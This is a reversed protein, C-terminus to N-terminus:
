YIKEHITGGLSHIWEAEAQLMGARASLDNRQATVLNNEIIIWDDFGILGNEYQVSAIKAREESARLFEQRFEVTEIADQLGKWRDELTLLVQQRGTQETAGAQLFAVHSRKITAANEGGEFLPISLSLGFSVGRDDGWFEDGSKGLSSVASVAPWIRGKASHKDLMAAERAAALENLFPITELLSNLDPKQAHFESLEFEGEVFVNRMQETGMAIFLRRRALVLGRGAERVNFQAEALEAKATLLAGRHERGGEYRLEIMQLNQRKRDRIEETLTVFRQAEMVDIYAARIDLLVDSATVEYAFQQEDVRKRAAKLAYPTKLGDFLLWSTVIKHNYANAWKGGTEARNFTSTGSIEPFLGSRAIDESFQAEEIDLGASRLEPQLELTKAVVEEWKLVDEAPATRATLALLCCSLIFLFRKRM